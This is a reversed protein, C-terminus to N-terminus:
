DEELLNKIQLEFSTPLIFLIQHDRLYKYFAQGERQHSFYSQTVPYNMWNDRLYQIARELPSLDEYKKDKAKWRKGPPIQRPLPKSAKGLDLIKELFPFTERIWAARQQDSFQVMTKAVQDRVVDALGPIQDLSEEAAIEQSSPKHKPVYSLRVGAPLLLSPHELIEKPIESKQDRYRLFIGVM